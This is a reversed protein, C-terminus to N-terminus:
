IDGASSTKLSQYFTREISAKAAAQSDFIRMKFSAADNSLSILAEAIENGDFSSISRCLDSLGMDKLIFEAKPQYALTVFPTRAQMSFLASHFRSAIVGRCSNLRARLLQPTVATRDFVVSGNSEAVLRQILKEDLSTGDGAGVQSYLILPRGDAASQLSKAAQLIETVYRDKLMTPDNVEPYNWDIVTGVFHNAWTHDRVAGPDSSKTWWALDPTSIPRLGMSEVLRTSFSERTHIKDISSLLNRALFRDVKSLFPGISMPAAVKRASSIRLPLANVINAYFSLGNSYLYGGPCMVIMDAHVISLYCKRRLPTLFVRFAPVYSALLWFVADWAAIISDQFSQPRHFPSRTFKIDNSFAETSEAPYTTFVEIELAGDVAINLIDLLSQLLEHDGRNQPGFAHTVLIRM